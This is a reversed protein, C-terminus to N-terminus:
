PRSADRHAQIDDPVGDVKAWGENYHRVINVYARAWKAYDKPPHNHYCTWPEISEGQGVM